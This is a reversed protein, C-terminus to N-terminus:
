ETAETKQKVPKKSEVVVPNFPDDGGKLCQEIAEDISEAEFTKGNAFKVTIM